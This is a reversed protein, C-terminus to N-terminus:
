ILLNLYFKPLSTATIDCHLRSVEAHLSHPQRGTGPATERGKQHLSISVQQSTRSRVGNLQFHPAREIEHGAPLTSIKSSLAPKTLSHLPSHAVIRQTTTCRVCQGAGSAFAM